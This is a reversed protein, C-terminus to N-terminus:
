AEVSGLRDQEMSGTKIARWIETQYQSLGILDLTQVLVELVRKSKVQTM